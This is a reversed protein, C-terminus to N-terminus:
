EEPLVMVVATCNHFGSFQGESRAIQGYTNCGVFPAGDLVRAVSALEYEFGIGTRLRTAVCDFFFAGGPRHQGLAAVAAATARTAASAASEANTKMIHVRAHEPIESACLISGDEQLALPVRLRYGNGTDVGLINHLFFPMPETRDFVQGNAQAHAEFAEVAPLANLSVLRMGDVETARMAPGAPEWGHGVGIGIPKASLMELAVIADDHVETGLFVHSKRFHADDGAGGGAFLYRGATLATLEEVVSQASGALADTMILAARYRARADDLGAFGNVLEAAAGRADKSIHKGISAAMRLEASQIALASVAGTGMAQDTFEGASSSGVMLKPQCREDLRQLLLHYDHGSSAFVILADPRGQLSEAFQAAIEDAADVSNSAASHAAVLVSM